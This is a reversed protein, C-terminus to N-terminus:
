REEWPDNLYKAIIRLSNMCNGETELSARGPKRLNRGHRAHTDNPMRSEDDARVIPSLVVMAIERLLITFNGKQHALYYVVAPVLLDENPLGVAASLLQSSRRRDKEGWVVQYKAAVSAKVQPPVLSDEGRSRSVVLLYRCNVKM